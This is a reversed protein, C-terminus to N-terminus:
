KAVVNRKRGRVEDVAAQRANKEFLDEQYSGLNFKTKRITIVSKAIAADLCDAITPFLKRVQSQEVDSITGIQEIMWILSNTGEEKQRILLRSATISIDKAEHDVKKIYEICIQSLMLKIKHYHSLAILNNPKLYKKISFQLIYQTTLLSHLKILNKDSDPLWTLVISHTIDELPNYLKALNPKNRYLSSKM